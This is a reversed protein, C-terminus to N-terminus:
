SRDIQQEKKRQAKEVAEQIRKERTESKSADDIRRVTYNQQGPPLSKFDKLVRESRLASM